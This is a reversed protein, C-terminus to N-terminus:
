AADRYQLNLEPRVALYSDVALSLRGSGPEDQIFHWYPAGNKFIFFTGPNLEAQYCVPEALGADVEGNAFDAEMGARLPMTREISGGPTLDAFRSGVAFLSAVALGSTTLHYTFRIDDADQEPQAHDVHLGVHGLEGADGFEFEMTAAETEMGPPLDAYIQGIAGGVNEAATNRIALAPLDTTAFRWLLERAAAPSDAEPIRVTEFRQLM